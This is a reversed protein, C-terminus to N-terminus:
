MHWHMGTQHPMLQIEWLTEVIFHFTEKEVDNILWVTHYSASLAEIVAQRVAIDSEM